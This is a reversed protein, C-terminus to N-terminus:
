ATAAQLHLNRTRVPPAAYAGHSTLIAAGGAAVHEAILQNVLEIGPLDLNAYPEDLLWLPAQSRWMRALALRKRQGASLQRFPTFTYALLGVRKLAQMVTRDSRHGQLAGLHELNEICQLDAKLGPLHGLYSIGTAQLMPTAVLGNLTVQGNQAKLLGALVRILTTKGAGNEGEILLAEGSEVALSLPGFVIQDNRAFRLDTARLLPPNSPATM